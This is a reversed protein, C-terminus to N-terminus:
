RITRLAYRESAIKLHRDMIQESEDKLANIAATKVLKLINVLVGGRGSADLSKSLDVILHAKEKKYLCSAKKLSLTSELEWLFHSLHRGETWLPLKSVELRTTLSEEDGFVIGAEESGAFVIPIRLYNSINRIAFLAESKKKGGHLMNNVDDIMLLRVRCTFLATLVRRQKSVVSGADWDSYGFPQLITSLLKGEGGNVPATTRLIPIIEVGPESQRPHRRECENLLASKGNGPAGTLLVKQTEGQNNALKKRRPNRKEFEHLLATKGNGPVGTLLINQPRLTRPRSLLEEFLSLVANGQPYPIFSDEWIARIREKLSWNLTKATKDLLHEYGM